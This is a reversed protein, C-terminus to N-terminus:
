LVGPILARRSPPYDPFTQRYWCYRWLARPTLNAATWLAAVTDFGSLDFSM